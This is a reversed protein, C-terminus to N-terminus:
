YMIYLTSPVAIKRSACPMGQGLAHPVSAYGLAHRIDLSRVVTVVVMFTNTDDLAHSANVNRLDLSTHGRSGTQTMIGLKVVVMIIVMIVIMMMVIIIMTVTQISSLLVIVSM